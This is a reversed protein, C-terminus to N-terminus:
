PATPRNALRLAPRNSSGVCLLFVACSFVFFCGFLNSVTLGTTKVISGSLIFSSHTQMTATAAPTRVAQLLLLWCCCYCRACYSFNLPGCHLM